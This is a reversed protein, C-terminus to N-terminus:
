PILLVKGQSKGSELFEHAKKGEELRFKVPETINLKGSSFLKFLRGAKERRKAASKIHGWLDGGVLSLSRDMLYRPDVPAPDGGSMGFFVTTGGERTINMSQALTKGVSDYIVDAGINETIKLIADEWNEKLLLAHEAGNEKIIELKEKKRSLGIVKANKLKALQTLIQGVGGSAAHIVVFDKEKIVYSEESLFQATLGQLLLSAANEFSINEPLKILKEAPAKILEANAHPVDAFGIRDGKGFDASNSEVVIGAGEYGALFPPEGELHYNGRRRYIDAYNLGIAKMEVLVEGEGSVPNEIEKYDLVEPGGFDSFTLAKM